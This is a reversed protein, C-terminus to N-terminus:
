ALVVPPGRLSTSILAIYFSGTLAYNRVIPKSEPKAKYAVAVTYYDKEFHASCILCNHRESGVHVKHMCEKGNGACYDSQVEHHHLSSWPTLAIAFVWLLLTALIRNIHLRRNNM